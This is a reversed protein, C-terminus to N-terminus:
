ELDGKHLSFDRIAHLTGDSNKSGSIALHWKVGADLAKVFADGAKTGDVIIFALRVQGDAVSAFTPIGVIEDLTRAQPGAIVHGFKLAWDIKELVDKPSYGLCDVKLEAKRTM